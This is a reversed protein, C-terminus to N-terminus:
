VIGPMNLRNLTQPLNTSSGRGSLSSRAQALAELPSHTAGASGKGTGTEGRILLPEHGDAVREALPLLARTEEEPYLFLLPVGETENPM